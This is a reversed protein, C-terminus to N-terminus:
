DILSVRWIILTGEIPYKFSESKVKSRGDVMTYKYLGHQSLISLYGQKRENIFELLDQLGKGRDSEKTSTREIEVAAKLLMADHRKEMAPLFSLFEVVKEWIESSPLSNPIGIGQDYFVFKLERNQPHYGGSLYWNKHAQNFGESEPYAHQSVNTIAESFGSNLIVWKSISDGIINVIEQKLFRTKSTDGTKGKIYKVLRVADPGGAEQAMTEVEATKRFLEFFGLQYFRSFIEPHWNGVRPLLRQRLHDNWKSLEATLVLAASTSISKLSDFNVLALTLSRPSLRVQPALKRIANIHIATIEYDSSFNMVEPLRITVQGKRNISANLEGAEAKSKIWNDLYRGRELSASRPHGGRKKRYILGIRHAINRKVLRNRHKESPKKMRGALTGVGLQFRSEVM